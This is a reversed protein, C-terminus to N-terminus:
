AKKIAALMDLIPTPMKAGLSPDARMKEVMSIALQVKHKEALVWLEAQTATEASAEDCDTKLLDKILAENGSAIVAHELCKESLKYTKDTIEAASFGHKVLEQLSSAGQEDNDILAVWPIDFARALAAFPGISGNNRYDIVAIGHKDLNYELADGLGNLLIHESQGEVLLWKRAFFIEGRIRRAWEDLDKLISDEIYQNSDSQLKAILGCLNQRDARTGYAAMLDRKEEESLKGALKLEGTAPFFQLRPYKALVTLLEPTAPLGSCSYSSRLFSVSTGQDTLRILRITRVPVNQVFYPSHTTVIKQGSLAKVRQWLTRAAQPHLHAEPEELALVPSSGRNYLDALLHTVFTEFLFIVSLSQIGQGQSELPLWAKAEENRLIVGARSLLDWPKLPMASLRLDGTTDQAAIDTVAKLQNAIKELLPDSKLLKENVLKLVRMIRTETLQPISVAKLLRAWFQSRASFEDGVNRLASLYFMPVYNFLPHTNIVRASKGKLPARAADLFEWVPEYSQKDEQWGCSVRLVVYSCGNPTSQAIELLDDQVEAPWEGPVREAFELEIVAPPCTKPDAKDDCLHIDYETFGTGRQGWRRGLAIRVADVIATKGSNNPGILVTTPTFDLEINKISRFNQIRVKTIEM